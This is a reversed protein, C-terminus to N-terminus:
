PQVEVEPKFFRQQGRCPIMGQFAVPGVVHWHHDGKGMKVDRCFTAEGIIGGRRTKPLEWTKVNCVPTGNLRFFFEKSAHIYVRQGIMNKPLPWSRYEILKLGRVIMEAFPQQVSLALTPPMRLGRGKM